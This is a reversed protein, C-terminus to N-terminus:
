ELESLGKIQSAHSSWGSTAKWEELLTDPVYIYCTDTAVASSDFTTGDCSPVSTGKKDRIANAINTLHTDTVIVKAM